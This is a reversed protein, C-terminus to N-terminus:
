PKSNWKENVDQSFVVSIKTYNEVLKVVVFNNKVVTNKGKFMLGSKLHSFPSYIKAFKMRNDTTDFFQYKYCNDEVVKADLVLEYKQPAVCSLNFNDTLTATLYGLDNQYTAGKSLLDRSKKSLDDVHKKQTSSLRIKKKNAKTINCNLSSIYYQNETSFNIFNVIEDDVFDIM